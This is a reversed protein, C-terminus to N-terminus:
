AGKSTLSVGINVDIGLGSMIESFKELTPQIKGSEYAAISNHSSYGLKKALDRQSLNTRHRLRQMMFGVIRKNWPVSISFFGQDKDTWHSSNPDFGDVGLEELHLALADNIMFLADDIDTGQTMLDLAPIEILYWDKDQWARGNMGIYLM